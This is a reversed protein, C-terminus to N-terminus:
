VGSDEEVEVIEKNTSQPEKTERKKTSEPTIDVIESVTINDEIEIAVGAEIFRKAKEEELDYVEFRNYSMANMQFRVKTM